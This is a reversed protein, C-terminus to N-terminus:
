PHYDIYSLASFLRIIYIYIYEECGIFEIFWPHFPVTMYYKKYGDIASDCEHHSPIIPPGNMM